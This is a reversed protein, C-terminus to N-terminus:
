GDPRSRPGLPGRRLDTTAPMPAHGYGDRTGRRHPIPLATTTM